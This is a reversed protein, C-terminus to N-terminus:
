PRSEAKFNAVSKVSQVSKSMKLHSVRIKKLFILIMQLIQEILTLFVGAYVTVNLM